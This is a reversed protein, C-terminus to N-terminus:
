GKYGPCENCCACQLADLKGGVNGKQANKKM